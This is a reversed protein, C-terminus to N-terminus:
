KRELMRQFAADPEHWGVYKLTVENVGGDKVDFQVLWDYNMRTPSKAYFVDNEWHMLETTFRGFRLSLNNDKNAVQLDGFFSSRFQGAYKALPLAPKKGKARAADLKARERDRSRDV